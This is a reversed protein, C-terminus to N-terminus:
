PTYGRDKLCKKLKPLVRSIRVQVTGHEEGVAEGIEAFSMGAQFRMLVQARHDDKLKGLCHELARMKQVRGEDMGENPKGGLAAWVDFDAGADNRKARKLEDISRHYAIGCLWSWLSSRGEFKGIGQFAELFVQQRVDKASDRNRTFRLIFGLLAEGYATMLIQIAQSKADVAAKRLAGLAREEAARDVRSPKTLPSRFPL